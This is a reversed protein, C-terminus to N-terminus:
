THEGALRRRLEQVSGLEAEARELEATYGAVDAFRPHRLASRVLELRGETWDAVLTHQAEAVSLSETLEDVLEALRAAEVEADALLKSFVDKVHRERQGFGPSHQWSVRTVSLWLLANMVGTTRRLPPEPTPWGVDHVAAGPRAVGAAAAFQLRKMRHLM